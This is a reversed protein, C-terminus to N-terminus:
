EAVISMNPAITASIDLAGTFRSINKGDVLIKVEEVSDFQTLTNVLSYVCINEEEKTSIGNKLASNFDVICVGDRINIDKLETGVPFTPNLEETDPGLILEQVTARAIGEEKPIMRTERVLKGADSAAFYLTVQVMEVENVPNQAAAALVSLQQDIIIQGTVAATPETLPASSKGSEAEEGCGGLIALCALMTLAVFKKKM